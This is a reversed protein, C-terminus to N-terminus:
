AINWCMMRTIVIILFVFFLGLAKVHGDIVNCTVNLIKVNDYTEDYEQTFLPGVSMNIAHYQKVFAQTV